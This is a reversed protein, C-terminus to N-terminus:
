KPLTFCFTSGKGLESEVWIRGGHLEVIRKCIALGIGTGAYKDREHLRQFVEFLKHIEGPEIGIGNDSVQLLWGCEHSRVGIHIKPHRGEVRFKVANGIVNQFLQRMQGMDASVTPLPDVTIVTDSEQIAVQLNSKAEEAIASLDVPAFPKGKTGVKAYDLLDRILATMRTAGDVAFNIYQQAKGDLQGKYKEQLLGLFSSVM